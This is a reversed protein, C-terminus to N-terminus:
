EMIAPSRRIQRLEEEIRWIIERKDDGAKVADLMLVLGGEVLSLKAQAAEAERRWALRSAIALDYGSSITNSKERRKDPRERPNSAIRASERDRKCQRCARMKRGTEPETSWLENQPTFEHGRKCHTKPQRGRKSQVVM